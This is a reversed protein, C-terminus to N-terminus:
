IVFVYNLVTMHIRSTSLLLFPQCNLTIGVFVYACMCMNSHTSLCNMFVCHMLPVIVCRYYGLCQSFTCMLWRRLVLDQM